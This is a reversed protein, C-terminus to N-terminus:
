HRNLPSLTVVRLTDGESVKLVEAQAPSITVVDDDSPQLPAIICRFDKLERNSLMYVDAKPPQEIEEVRVKCYYSEKVARVYRVPAEVLPGADFIAVCGTYRLGERELMKLAPTTDAQTKGIVEAAAEPLLNVYIPHNPMLEAIFSKGHAVRQDAEIFDVNFFKRGLSEWFPSHQTEDLYGRLEAMVDPAFRKQHEAMFMFRSKSLLRGNNSHRYEPLLFLTCLESYGTHDSSLILTEVKNYVDLEASHHVQTNVRYNYWPESMGVASEIGAIGVVKGISTDELVLLYLSEGVAEESDYSELTWKLKERVREEHPQLSTFGPGTKNALEWLADWDDSRIPRIVMM